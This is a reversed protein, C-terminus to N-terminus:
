AAIFQIDDVLLLDAVRYKMRFDETSGARIAAILENTFQECTVYMIVFLHTYSVATIIIQTRGNKTAEIAARGRLTIKGRGTAYAARIGSRGMIIGATPFDPGKIHEMLGPLDIDPNEIYAVCGDIVESLNHPPINTAMGVAIGQSGNVLLNPFRCPLVSPEKKM